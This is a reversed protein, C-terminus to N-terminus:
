KTEFTQSSKGFNALKLKLDAANEKCSISHYNYALIFYTLPLTFTFLFWHFLHSIFTLDASQYEFIQHWSIFNVLYTTIGSISFLLVIFYLLLISVYVSLYYLWNNFSHVYSIKLEKFSYLNKVDRELHTVIFHPPIIIFGLLLYGWSKTFYITLYLFSIILVPFAFKKFHRIKNVITLSEKEFIMKINIIIYTLAILVVILVEYGGTSFNFLSIDRIQNDVNFNITIYFMLYLAFLVATYFVVHKFIGGINIRFQAISTTLIESFKKLQTKSFDIEEEIQPLGEKEDILDKNKFRYYFPYIVWQLLIFLFSFIIIAAKLSNPMDTLRTVYSELMGAIIFLPIIGVIIKLARKSAVQLSNTRSFTKPFLLGNGLIIGAAGACIIASIEITGHIWITLFSIQFLGKSYFFYQFAGLMIGNSLLIIYTGISGILGFIFAYFAVRINNSTIRFFMNEKREDKYVAMPDGNRINEETMEVYEEGLIVAPFDTNNISSVVGIGIAIIFVIFSSYFARRSRYIEQPLGHKFFDVVKKFPFKKEEVRISDFVRQTLNNLYLRVSRNPYFTRAFSLDSSVKVFLRNLKDPNVIKRDLLFELEQWDKKNKTIFQSETM